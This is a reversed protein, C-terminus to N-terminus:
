HLEPFHPAVILMLTFYSSIILMMGGLISTPDPSIKRGAIMLTGVTMYCVLLFFMFSLGILLATKGPFLNDLFFCAIFIASACVPCPIALFAWARSGCSKNLEAEVYAKKSKLIFIGWAFLIAAWFFHIYIGSQFFLKVYDSDNLAIMFDSNKLLYFSLFFIAFYAFSSIVIFFLKEASKRNGSLYYYNGVGTKFAFVATSFGIGLLLSSIEPKM